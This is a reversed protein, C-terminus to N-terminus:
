VCVIGATPSYGYWARAGSSRSTSGPIMRILMLTAARWFAQEGLTLLRPVRDGRFLLDFAIVAAVSEVLQDILEGHLARPYPWYMSLQTSSAEDIAVVTIPMVAERPGTYVSFLDFVRSKVTLWLPLVSLGLPMLWGTAASLLALRLVDPKLGARHHRKTRPPGSYV